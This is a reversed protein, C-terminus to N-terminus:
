KYLRAIITEGGKVKQGVQVMITAEKPLYVETSSGFRILGFRDGTALSDGVQVWCVLRRAVIGTIQVVLVKGWASAIGLYNRVNKESAENKYAPLYTGSVRKVLEVQGEIPNRNIHVNFISLFIRVRVTNGHVYKDEFVTKIDMVRGDAPAVVMGMSASFHREPNRFFFICFLTLVLGPLVGAWGTGLYLLASLMAFFAIFIWGERAVIERHNM